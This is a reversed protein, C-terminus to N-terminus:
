DDRLRGGFTAALSAAFAGLLLSVFLWLAGYASAKRTADAAAKTTQEAERVTTQARAYMDTVRKEAEQQSLGTRQAVIQGVYRVDDQPLAEARTANMFIRGIESAEEASLRVPEPRASTTADSEAATSGATADRRLMSDVFYRISGGAEDPAMGAAAGASAAVTTAVGAAVTSGAQIGSGVVSGIASTLLTATVLTAVAWALFGHATDRFYVENSHIDAWRTRLRGALYGGTAAAVLQTLTLWVITSIGFSEASIGQQSWPSVSSLGLGTGLILLILSLSAAAAAGAVIAGWAVASAAPRAAGAYGGAFARRDIQAQSTAATIETMPQGQISDEGSDCVPRHKDACQHRARYPGRQAQDTRQCVGLRVRHGAPSHRVTPASADCHFPAPSGALVARRGCLRGSLQKICTM